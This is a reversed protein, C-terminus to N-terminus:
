SDLTKVETTLDVSAFELVLVAVLVCSCTGADRNEIGIVNQAEVQVMSSGTHSGILFTCRCISHHTSVQRHTRIVVPDIQLKGAPWHSAASSTRLYEVRDTLPEIEM